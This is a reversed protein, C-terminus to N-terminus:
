VFIDVSGWVVAEADSVQWLWTHFFYNWLDFHPEIGMYAECLTAFAAIHLVGLPTLHQLELGYYRLLSCLFQHLPTGFQWEYFMVFSVVYGEAPEPFAPDEPVRCAELETTAMFGHKVLKQLHSPTITSPTWDKEAMVRPPLSPLV